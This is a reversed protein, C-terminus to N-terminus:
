IDAETIMREAEAVIDPPAQGSAIVAELLPIAATADALGYYRVNALFWKALVDGPDLELSRELLLAGTAADDSLYTMWGVYMLAEANPGRELIYMYHPLASSFEGAEVYRRALALRMPVVDPNAAVVGELEQNTVSSLDFAATTGSPDSDVANTLGVVAATAGMAFVALGIAIRRPSRGPRPEPRPEDIESLVEALEVEYRRRLEAATEADIEGIADQADLDRLDAVIRDRREELTSVSPETV